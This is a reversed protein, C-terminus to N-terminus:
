DGKHNTPRRLSCLLEVDTVLSTSVGLVTEVRVLSPFMMIRFAMPPTLLSM